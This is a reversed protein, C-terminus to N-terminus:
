GEDVKSGKRGLGSSLLSISSIEGLEVLETAPQNRVGLLFFSHEARMRFVAVITGKGNFTAIDRPRM